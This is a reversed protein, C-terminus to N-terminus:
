GAKKEAKYVKVRAATELNLTIPCCHELDLEQLANLNGGKGQALPAGRAWKGSGSMFAIGQPHIGEITYVTGTTKHGHDNEVVIADGIKIGKEKATKPHMLINFVYPSLQSVENFYSIGQTMSGTHIADKFSFAILDYEPSKPNHIIAPFWSILPTYYGFNLEVNHAKCISETKERQELIFEMYVSSRGNTFARWYAEEPKKPWTIFGHEKFWELGKDPGFKWKLFRDNIEEWSVDEDEDTFRQPVGSQVLYQNLGKIVEKKIGLRDALELVVQPIFRREYLPEVIPQRLHYAWPLMGVPAYLVFFEAQLCSLSELYCTDPLVIDAFGETTENHYLSFFVTFPVKKLFNAVTEPQGVTMVTNQAVGMIMEIRYPLNFKELLEESDSSFPFPTSAACCTFLDGLTARKPIKPEPHPWTGPLSTLWLTATLLGDKTAIPEWKPLGTETYGVCKAPWGIAGGPVDMAGALQNLLDVAFYTHFGNTHGSGGRFQVAAVPRYPLKVGDIEITSGIRANEIFETALRRITVAPVTSIKSAWEPTYQKVHKKILEFAPTCKEGKVEYEGELTPDKLNSDDWAKAKGDAGDWMLPEGREDRIYHGDNKVLYPVNSKHKLYEIDYKKLENIIVNVMSLAVALDTGPLIPVWETSKGGIQHCLPDVAVTRLGQATSEARLAAAMSFSHGAGTAAEGGFFIAYKCYKYDPLVSWSCHNMGAGFHSANGCHLGGGGPSYNLSGYALRFLLVLVHQNIHNAPIPSTLFLVKSPNESRLKKLRETIEELAKEWTIRKWKPDVGIGKEPNTRKVPYNVRDPDYLVNLGAIGKGCIGGRGNISSGPDGEIAVAVGNVRRVRIGCQAYCMACSTPIWKDEYIPVQANKM